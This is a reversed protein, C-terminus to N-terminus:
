VKLIISFIKKCGRSQTEARLWWNEDSSSKDSIWLFSIKISLYICMFICIDGVVISFASYNVQIIVFCEAPNEYISRLFILGIQM